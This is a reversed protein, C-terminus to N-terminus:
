KSHLWHSNHCPPNGYPFPIWFLTSASLKHFSCCLQTSVTKKLPVPPKNQTLTTLMPRRIKGPNIKLSDLFRRQHGTKLAAEVFQICFMINSAFKDFLCIAWSSFCYLCYTIHSKVSINNWDWNQEKPLRILLGPLSGGKDLLFLDLCNLIVLRRNSENHCSM